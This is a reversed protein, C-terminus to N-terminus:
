SSRGGTIGIGSYSCSRVAILQGPAGATLGTYKRQNPWGNVPRFYGGGGNVAVRPVPRCRLRHDTKWNLILAAFNEIIAM